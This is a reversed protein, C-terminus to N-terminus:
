KDNYTINYNSPGKICEGDINFRSSHCPCDWTLETENFILSCGMHPCKNIIKHEFGNKDKYIAINDIFKINNKYWYRNKILKPGIFSKTQSYLIYPLSLFNSLTFRNPNFINEYKNDKNKILDSIIKAAIVSNTMGWTNYGCAIYMDSNLKGIFPINDPTMIDVNSYKMIIDKNKINFKKQTNEFHKKDNYDYGIEHSESLSIQYINEGDDYFRISYVPNSTNICTFNLDKKAKSVIIYSKEITSKIPLFFPILFYPYHCALIIKKSKIKYKPTYSIFCDNNKEIKIVKTKEYINIKNKILIDYLGTLYKIPNFIYTDDVYYSKYQKINLPLKEEKVEINNEKFFKIQKNLSIVEDKTSAFVYSKVKKFDCEIKETEIIKKLVKISEIQSELYLKKKDIKNYISEQFYNIKATSNLTVGHGILNSDVVCVNKDKLFYATNLGTMGGGIILIETEIDSKLVNINHVKINKNWISMNDGYNNKTNFFLIYM